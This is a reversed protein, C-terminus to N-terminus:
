PAARLPKPLESNYKTRILIDTYLLPKAPTKQYLLYEYLIHPPRYGQEFAEQDGKRAKEVLERDTM